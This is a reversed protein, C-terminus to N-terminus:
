VNQNDKGEYKNKLLQYATIGDIYDGNYIKYQYEKCIIIEVMDFIDDQLPRIHSKSILLEINNDVVIRYSNKFTNLVEINNKNTTIKYWRM